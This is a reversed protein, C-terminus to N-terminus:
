LLGHLELKTYLTRRSVGLLRAALTRNNGARTLAAQLAARETKRRNEDLSLDGAARAGPDADDALRPQEPALERLVEAVDIQRGKTL